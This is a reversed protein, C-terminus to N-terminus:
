IEIDFVWLFILINIVMFAMALILAVSAAIAVCALFLALCIVGALIVIGSCIILSLLPISIIAALIYRASKM